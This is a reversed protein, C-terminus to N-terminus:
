FNGGGGGGSFGGGGFEMPSENASITTTNVNANILIAKVVDFAMPNLNKDENFTIGSTNNRIKRILLYVISFLISGGLIFAVEIALIAHYYRITAFSLAFTICGIWFFIRDKNKLGFFVYFIPIAFTAFYFLPAMPIEQNPLLELGLLVTSLERVVLYNLAAYGLILSFIKITLFVNTYIFNEIKKSLQRQLFHLSIAIIFVLFPLYFSPISNGQTVIYGILGILGILSFFMSPVHVYRIACCGSILAVIFLVVTVSGTFIGAAVCFFLTISLIFSDDFGYAFYNKKYLLEAVVISAIAALLCCLGIINEDNLVSLFLAVFGLVSSILFNGLLFFVIRLLFNSNTKTSITNFKLETLQQKTVIDQIKLKDMEELLFHNQINNFNSALM